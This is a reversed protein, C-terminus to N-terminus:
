KHFAQFDNFRTEFENLAFKDIHKIVFEKISNLSESNLVEEFLTIIKNAQIRSLKIDSYLTAAIKLANESFSKEINETLTPSISEHITVIDKSEILECNDYNVNADYNYTSIDNNRSLQNNCKRYHNSSFEL